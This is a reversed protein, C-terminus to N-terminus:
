GILLLVGQQQANDGGDVTTNTTHVGDGTTPQGLVETETGDEPDHGHETHSGGHDQGEGHLLGGGLDGRLNVPETYQGQHHGDTRQQGGEVLGALKGIDVPEQDDCQKDDPDDTNDGEVVDFLTHLVRQDAHLVQTL